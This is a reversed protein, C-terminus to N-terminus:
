PSAEAGKGTPTAPGRAHALAPPARADAGGGLLRPPDGVGVRAAIVADRPWSWERRSRTAARAVGCRRPTARPWLAPVPNDTQINRKESIAQAKHPPPPLRFNKTDQRRALPAKEERPLV